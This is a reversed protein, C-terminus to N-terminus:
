RTPTRLGFRESVAREFGRPKGWGSILPSCSAHANELSLVGDDGAASSSDAPSM